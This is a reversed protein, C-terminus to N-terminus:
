RREDNHRRKTCNVINRYTTLHERLRMVDRDAWGLHSESIGAGSIWAVGFGALEVIRASYIDHIGPMITIEPAALREKPTIATDAM